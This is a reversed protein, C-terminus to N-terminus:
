TDPTDGTDDNTASAEIAEPGEGSPEIGASVRLREVAALRRDLQRTRTGSMTDYAKTTQELRRGVDDWSKKFLEWQKNFEGMAGLMENAHQELQFNEMSQRIVALIAFLTLPSCLVVRKRLAEEAITADQEHIFGYVQENPIFVLMYDLTDHSPDIYERTTVEQIRARVDGLFDKTADDRERDSEAELFRLYASLPFKVDMHLVRQQPLLFTYDPRTVGGSIQTNKLYNVGELLGAIRLVDEAMREGWQGRTQGGSLARNLEATTAGLAATARRSEEMVSGLKAISEARSTDVAQVFKTMSELSEAIQRVSRDIESQRAKLQEEGRGTEAQLRSEALTLFQENNQQLAQQQLTAIEGRLASLLRDSEISPGVADRRDRQVVFLAVFAVIVAVTAIVILAADM